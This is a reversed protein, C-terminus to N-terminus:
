YGYGSEAVVSALSIEQGGPWTWGPKTAPVSMFTMFAFLDELILKCSAVFGTIIYYDNNANTNREIRM